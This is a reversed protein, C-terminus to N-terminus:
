SNEAFGTRVWQLFLQINHVFLNLRTAPSAPRRVAPLAAPASANGNLGPLSDPPPGAATTAALMESLDRNPAPAPAAKAKPRLWASQWGLNTALAIVSQDDLVLPYQRTVSAHFQEEGVSELM